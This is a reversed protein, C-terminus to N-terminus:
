QENMMRKVRDSPVKANSSEIETRAENISVIPAEVYLGKEQPSLEGKLTTEIIYEFANVNDYSPQTPPLPRRRRSQTAGDLLQFITGIYLSQPRRKIKMM